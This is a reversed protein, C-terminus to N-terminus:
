VVGMAAAEGIQVLVGRFGELTTVLVCDFGFFLWGTPVFILFWSHCDRIPAVVFCCGSFATFWGVIFSFVIDIWFNCGM